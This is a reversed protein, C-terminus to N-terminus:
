SRACRTVRHSASGGIDCVSDRSAPRDSTSAPTSIAHPHPPSQCTGLSTPRASPPSPPWTPRSLAPPSATPRTPPPRPSCSSPSAPTAPPTAASPMPWSPPPKAPPTLPSPLGAEAALTQLIATLQASTYGPFDIVAPFLAALAPTAHLMDRLPGAQGALIVALEDGHYKRAETLIQYLCRLLHQGHGPLDYWAHAGTIMVLDGTVKVAENVQAATDRATPGPLDAAPIEILNGYRLVGLDRYLDAIAAGAFVLNKWAPRSVAIGAKRRAQEARLVMLLPTLQGAAMELGALAALGGTCKASAPDLATMTQDMRGVGAASTTVAVRLSDVAPRTATEVPVRSKGAQPAGRTSGAGSSWSGIPVSTRFDYPGTVPRM